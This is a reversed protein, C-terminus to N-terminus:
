FGFWEGIAGASEGIKELKDVANNLNEMAESLEETDLGELADNLADVDLADLKASLEEMDLASITRNLAEYDIQEVYKLSSRIGEVASIVPTIKQWLLYGGLLLVIMLAVLILNICRNVKLSKQLKEMMEGNEM